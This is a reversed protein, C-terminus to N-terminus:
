PSGGVREDVFRLRTRLQEIQEKASAIRRRLERAETELEGLRQRVAASASGPGIPRARAEALEAEAKMCRRRWGTIENTLAGAVRELAPLAALDPREYRSAL